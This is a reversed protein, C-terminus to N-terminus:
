PTRLADALQRVNHDILSVYDGTEESGPMIPMWLVRAGTKAAVFEPNQRERNPEALIVRVHQAQMKPILEVLHTPSPPIGPKPELTDIVDFGFRDAFYDFDKHYAVVKAGRMPGLATQWQPLKADIAEAFRRAGDQYSSCHAADVACLHAQITVAVTKANVPDLLYHPNGQPHVDGLSRDLRTPADLLAIGESAIVRGPTGMEIHSNRASDVLPPLWGAELQAGGEVLVDAQNLLRIFSPRADVFHPDENPRAISTVEIMEGGVARAISALDPTTAVVNLKGSAVAEGGTMAVLVVGVLGITNKM